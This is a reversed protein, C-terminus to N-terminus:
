AREFSDHFGGNFVTLDREEAHTLVPPPANMELGHVVCSERTSDADFVGRFRSSIV